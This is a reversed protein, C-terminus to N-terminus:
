ECVVGCDTCLVAPSTTYTHTSQCYAGDRLKEGQQALRDMMGEDFCTSNAIVVDGDSWDVEFMDGKEMVVRTRRGGGVAVGEGEGELGMGVLVGGRREREMKEKVGVGEKWLGELVEVGRVEEWDHVM